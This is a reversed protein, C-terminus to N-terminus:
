VFKEFDIYELLINVLHGVEDVFDLVSEGPVIVVSM